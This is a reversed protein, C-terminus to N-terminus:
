EIYITCLSENYKFLYIFYLYIFSKVTFYYIINVSFVSYSRKKILPFGFVWLPAATSHNCSSHPLSCATAGIWIRMFGWKSLLTFRDDACYYVKEDGLILHIIILYQFLVVYKYGFSGKWFLSRNVLQVYSRLSLFLLVQNCLYHWPVCFM